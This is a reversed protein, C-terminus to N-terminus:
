LKDKLVNTLKEVLIEEKEYCKKFMTKFDFNIDYVDRITRVVNEVYITYDYLYIHIMEHMITDKLDKAEANKRKNIVITAEHDPIEEYFANAYYDEDESFAITVKYHKLDLIDQCKVILQRCQKKFNKM